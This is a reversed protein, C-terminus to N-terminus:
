IKCIECFRLIMQEAKPLETVPFLHLKGTGLNGHPITQREKTELCLLIYKDIEVFYSSSINKNMVLIISSVPVRTSYLKMLDKISESPTIQSDSKIALAAKQLKQNIGRKKERCEKCWSCDADDPKLSHSCSSVSATKDYWEDDLVFKTVDREELIYKMCRAFSELHQIQAKERREENVVLLYDM